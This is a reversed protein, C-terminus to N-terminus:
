KKWRYKEMDLSFDREIKIGEKELLQKQLDKTATWNGKISIVGGNNVVRWWPVKEATTDISRLIGGVQRAARPSGAAAAAQGYSVVKGKPVKQLFKIVNEKFGM